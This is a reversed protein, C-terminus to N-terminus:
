RYDIGMNDYGSFTGRVYPYTQRTTWTGSTFHSPYHQDGTPDYELVVPICGSLMADFVRKQPPADGRLCPCFVSDHYAESIGSEGRISRTKFGSAAIPLGALTGNRATLEKFFSARVAGNGAIKTSMFASMALPRERFPKPPAANPQNRPNTNTYPIVLLGECTFAKDNSCSRTPGLTTVLGPSDQLHDDRFYPHMVRQIASDLFLHKHKTSANFYALKGVLGDRLEEKPIDKWCKASRMRCECDGASPYPVVPLDAERPDLTKLPGEYEDLIKALVVDGNRNFRRKSYLGSNSFVETCVSSGWDCASANSPFKNAICQSVGRWTYQEPLQYVYFKFSEGPYKQIYEEAELHPLLIRVVSDLVNTISPGGGGGPVNGVDNGFSPQEVEALTRRNTVASANAVDSGFSPQEVVARTRVNAVPLDGGGSAFGVDNGFPPPNVVAPTYINSFTFLAVGAITSLLSRAMSHIIDIAHYYIHQFPLTHKRM